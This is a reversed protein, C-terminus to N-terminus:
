KGCIPEVTSITCKLNGKVPTWSVHYGASVAWNCHGAGEWSGNHSPCYCHGGNKWEYCDDNHSHYCAATHTHMTITIISTTEKNGARDYVEAYANYSGETANTITVSMNKKTTEGSASSIKTSYTSATSPKYYWIVKGAGSLTDTIYTSLTFQGKGPTATLTPKTPKVTDMHIHHEGTWASKNGASDVARFRTNHSNYGHEPIFSGDITTRDATGNGDTDIEYYAVAINDTTSLQIKYNNKWSCSNAGGLYTVTVNGPASTDMHIHQNGTWPGINGANDVARFRTNCSSYGNWPIFNSGTTTDVVGDANWDVEYYKIGSKGYNTTTNADTASLQINYNNKWSHSNAGSNYKVTTAGPVLKDINAINISAYNGANIGDNYRYYVTANKDIIITGVYRTWTGNLTGIQYETTYGVKTPLTVTVNGNTWGTPSAVAGEAKEVNNTTVNLIGTQYKNGAKDYVVAYTNYVGSVLNTIDAYRTIATKEGLCSTVVRKYKSNDENSKKYYWEIRDIGSVEDKVSINLRFSKTTINSASLGSIVRPPTGDRNIEKMVVPSVNGAKDEMYARVVIGGEANVSIQQGNIATGRQTGDKTVIEYHLANIGSQYTGVDSGYKFIISLNNNFYNNNGTQGIVEITPVNPAISDKKIQFPITPTSMSVPLSYDYTTAVIEFKGENTITIISENPIITEGINIDSYKNTPRVLYTLKQVGSEKDIGQTIKVKINSSTYYGNKGLTGEIVEIKGYEPPINDKINVVTYDGDYAGDFLRVYVQDTVWLTKILGAKNTEYDIWASNDAMQLNTPNILYQLKLTDSVAGNKTITLTARHVNEDWKVSTTYNATEEMTISDTSITEDYGKFYENVKYLDYCERGFAQLVEKRLDNLAYSNVIKGVYEETKKDYEKVTGSLYDIDYTEAVNVLCNYCKTEYHPYYYRENGESIVVSQREFNTNKYVKVVNLNNNLIHKCNTLHVERKGQNDETIAYLSELTVVEKNKNNTIICYDNFYKTGIPIGQLFSTVSIDSTLKYWDEENFVPLVYEYGSQSLNNYNAIATMLNTKISRRIVSIRNLDFCSDTIDLNGKYAFIPENGTNSTFDTIKNGKEDVAHEQTIDGLYQNAWKSFLYAEYYYNLASDSYLHGGSTNSKLEELLEKDNIYQKKFNSNITFYRNIGDIQGEYYVKNNNHVIYEYTDKYEANNSGLYIIQESLIEKEITIGGYKLSHLKGNQWVIDTVMTPNIINGSKTIYNEGITGYVTIYNDLTYNVTIDIDNGLNSGKKYRCTYYIYPKLGYQYEKDTENYYKSYIYYGDYLTYLLAPTFQEIDERAQGLVLIEKGLSSFYTSIAAEIDRVKSDSVGSYKNNVTNLRFAKMSDYTATQLKSSYMTQLSISNIQMQIYEGVILSIPLIIIVFIIALHQLKM